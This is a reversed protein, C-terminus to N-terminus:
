WAFHTNLPQGFTPSPAANVLQLRIASLDTDSLKTILDVEKQGVVSIQQTHQLDALTQRAEQQQLGKHQTLWRLAEAASFTRHDPDSRRRM